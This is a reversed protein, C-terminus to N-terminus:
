AEIECEFGLSEVYSKAVLIATENDQKVGEELAVVQGSLGMDTNIIFKPQELLAKAKDSENNYQERSYWTIIEFALYKGDPTATFRVRGYVQELEIPFGIGKIKKEETSKIILGM